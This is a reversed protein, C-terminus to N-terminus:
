SPGLGEWRILGPGGLIVVRKTLEFDITCGLSWRQTTVFDLWLSADYEDIKDVNLPLNCLIHHPPHCPPLRPTWRLTQYVYDTTWMHIEAWCTNKCVCVGFYTKIDPYQVLYLM